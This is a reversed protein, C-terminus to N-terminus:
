APVKSPSPATSNRQMAFPTTVTQLSEDTGITYTINRWRLIWNLADQGNLRGVRAHIPQGTQFFVEGEEIRGGQVHEIQMMGSQRSSRTMALIQAFNEASGKAM